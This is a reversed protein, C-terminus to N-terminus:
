YIISGDKLEYVKYRTNGYTVRNKQKDIFSIYGDGIEPKERTESSDIITNDHFVTIFYTNNMVNLRNMIIDEFMNYSVGCVFYILIGIFTKYLYKLFTKMTIHVKINYKDM